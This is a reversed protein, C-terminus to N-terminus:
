IQRIRITIRPYQAIGIFLSDPLCGYSTEPNWIAYSSSQLEKIPRLEELDNNKQLGSFLEM